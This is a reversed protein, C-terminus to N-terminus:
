IKEYYCLKLNNEVDLDLVNKLTFQLPNIFPFYILNDGNIIDNTITIWMQDAFLLAEKYIQGGGIVWCNKYKELALKLSSFTEVDNIKKSTIVVNIRNPLTKGISEYTKRGMIVVSNLTSKKFWKLDESYKVALDNDKGIVGNSTLCAIIKIM